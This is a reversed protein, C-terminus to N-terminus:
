TTEREDYLVMLEDRMVKQKRVLQHLKRLWVYRLRITMVLSCESERAMKLIKQDLSHIEDQLRRARKSPNM